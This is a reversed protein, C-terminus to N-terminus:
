DARHAPAAGAGTVRSVLESRSLAGTKAFASKLHDQVTHESIELARASARTDAGSTVQAVVERERVTLGFVRTLLDLREAPTSREVSVAIAPGPGSIRAARFTLWGGGPPCVRAEAPGDDAGGEVALLQAAVNYAAAPVPDAGPVPPLLARLIEETSPTRGVVALEDSLLLVAPGTASGTGAPGFSHAHSRRLAQTLAPVSAAILSKESDDFGEPATRWLDLFGWCGHKDRFVVSLVDRVGLEAMLNRWPDSLSREIDTARLLTVVPESSRTWRNLGTAYKLRIVQPLLSMAAVPALDALPAVGVSTAPDTVVWAYADFPVSTAIRGLVDRRLSSSDGADAYRDLTAAVDRLYSQHTSVRRAYADGM